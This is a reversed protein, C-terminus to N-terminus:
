SSSAVTVTLSTTLFLPTVSLPLPNLIQHTRRTKSDNKGQRRQGEECPDTRLRHIHQASDQVRRLQKLLYWKLNRVIIRLLLAVGVVMFGLFLYVFLVGGFIGWLKGLGYKQKGITSAQM